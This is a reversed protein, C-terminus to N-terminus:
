QQGGAQGRLFGGRARTTLSFGRLRLCLSRPAFAAFFAALAQALGLLLETFLALAVALHDLLVALVARLSPLRPLLELLVHAPHLLCAAFVGLMAALTAAAPAVEFAATAM